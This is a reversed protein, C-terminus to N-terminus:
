LGRPKYGLRGLKSRKTTAHLIGLFLHVLAKNSKEQNWVENKNGKEKVELYDM